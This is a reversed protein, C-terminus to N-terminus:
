AGNNLWNSKICKKNSVLTSEESLSETRDKGVKAHSSGCRYRYGYRHFVQNLHDNQHGDQFIAVM